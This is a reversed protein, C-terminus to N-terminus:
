LYVSQWTMDVTRELLAIMFLEVSCYQFSVEFYVVHIWIFSNVFTLRNRCSGIQKHNQRNKHHNMSVTDYVSVGVLLIEIWYLPSLFHISIIDGGELTECFFINGEQPKSSVEVIAHPWSFPCRRDYCTVISPPSFM